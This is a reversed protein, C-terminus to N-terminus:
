KTAVFHRIEPYHTKNFYRTDRGNLGTMKQSLNAKPTEILFHYHNDM